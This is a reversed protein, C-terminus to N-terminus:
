RNRGGITLSRNELIGFTLDSYESGRTLSRREYAVAVVKLALLKFNEKTKIFRGYAVVECIISRSNSLLHHLM